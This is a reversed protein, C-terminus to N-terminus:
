RPGGTYEDEDAVEGTMATGVAAGDALFSPTEDSETETGTQSWIRTRDRSREQERDETRAERDEQEEFEEILERAIEDRLAIGPALSFCM